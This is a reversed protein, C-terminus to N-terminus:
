VRPPERYGGFVDKMAIVIEGLTARVRAADIILPMLNQDSAAAETLAVLARDVKGESRAGRLRALNSRQAGEIEGSIRLIELPPEDAKTYKTVGVIVRDGSALAKEYEYAADAIAGQFWGDEIGVLVGTLM